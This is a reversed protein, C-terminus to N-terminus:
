MSCTTNYSCFDMTNGSIFYKGCLWYYGSYYRRWLFDFTCKEQRTNQDLATNINKNTELADILYLSETDIGSFLKDYYLKYVKKDIVYLANDSQLLTEMFSFDQHVLLKYEKSSAKIMM